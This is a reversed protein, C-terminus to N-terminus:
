PEPLVIKHAYQFPYHNTLDSLYKEPVVWFAENGVKFGYAGYIVMGPGKPPAKPATAAESSQLVQPTANTVPVTAEAQPKAVAATHAPRHPRLVARPGSLSNTHEFAPVNTGTMLPAGELPPDDARCATLASAAILILIFPLKM